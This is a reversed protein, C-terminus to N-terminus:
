FLLDDEEYDYNETATFSQVKMKPKEKLQQTDAANQTTAPMVLDGDGPTNLLHLVTRSANAVARKAREEILKRQQTERQWAQEAKEARVLTEQYKRDSHKRLDQEAAIIAKLKDRQANFEAVLSENGKYKDNLEQITAELKKITNACEKHEQELKYHTDNLATYKQEIEARRNDEVQKTNELRVLQESADTLQRQFLSAKEALMFAHQAKEDAAIRALRENQLEIEAQNARLKAEKALREAEKRLRAEEHHAMAAQKTQDMATLFQEEAMKAQEVAQRMRNEAAQLQQNAARKSLEAQEAREYAESIKLNSTLSSLKQERVKLDSLLSNIKRGTHTDNNASIQQPQFFGGLLISNGSKDSLQQSIQKHQQKTQHIAQKIENQEEDTELQANLDFSAVDGMLDPMEDTFNFEPYFSNTDLSSEITVDLDLDFIDDDVALAAEQVTDELLATKWPRHARKKFASSSNKKRVDSM